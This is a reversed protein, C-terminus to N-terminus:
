SGTVIEGLLDLAAAVGERHTLASVGDDPIGLHRLKLSTGDGDAAFDVIVVEDLTLAEPRNYGVDADWHVTFALRENPRVEAYIGCMGSWGEGQHRGGAAKTYARYAGGVRLDVEAWPEGGMGAWIWRAFDDPDAFARFVREVPADFRRELTLETRKMYDDNM